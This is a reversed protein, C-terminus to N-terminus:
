LIIRKIQKLRPYYGRILQEIELRQSRLMTDPTLALVEVAEGAIEMPFETVVYGLRTVARKIATSTDTEDNQLQAKGDADIRYIVKM